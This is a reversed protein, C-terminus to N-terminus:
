KKEELEIVVGKAEYKGSYWKGDGKEVQEVKIEETKDSYEGGNEPGDIDEFTLTPSISTGSIFFSGDEATLATVIGPDTFVHCSVKIGAIPVSKQNVVKGSVEFDMTPTGYECVVSLGDCSTTTAFGLLVLVYNLIKTILTQKM